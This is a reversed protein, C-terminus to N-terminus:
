ITPKNVTAYLSNVYDVAAQHEKASADPDNYPHKPDKVIKRIEESAQEPALSFQNM